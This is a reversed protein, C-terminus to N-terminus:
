IKCAKRTGDKYELVPVGDVLLVIPEGKRFKARRISASIRSLDKQTLTEPTHKPKKKIRIKM